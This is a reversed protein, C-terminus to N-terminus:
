ATVASIDAGATGAAFSDSSQGTNQLAWQEGFRPDNPLELAKVQYNPEAYLVDARKSLERVLFETDRSRSRMHYLHEVGGLPRTVSLDHMQRITALASPSVQRFRVLVERQAAKKAKSPGPRQQASSQSLTPSFVLVILMLFCLRTRPM